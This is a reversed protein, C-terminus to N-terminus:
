LDRIIGDGNHCGDKCYLLEVLQTGEPVGEEFFRRIEEEGTVSAANVGLNEFYGPPIPSEHIVKRKPESGLMKLFQNWSVFHTDPLRLENGMDALSQCPTTIMKLENKLEKRGSGEQGCHILIPYIQPFTVESKLEMEKLLAKAKPCRVDMVPHISQKVATLYKDRVISLWDISTEFRKYGYKQLFVNLEEEEYMSAVVPNIWIYAM